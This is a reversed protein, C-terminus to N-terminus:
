ALVTQVVFADTQTTAYIPAAQSRIIVSRGDESPYGDHYFMRPDLVGSNKVNPMAASDPSLGFFWTLWQQRIPDIPLCDSPGFYRDCRVGSYFYLVKKLPMYNTITGTSPAKYVDDYTFLYFEHGRMTRAKGIWTFGAEVWKNFRSPLSIKDNYAVLDIRRNDGGTQIESDSYFAQAASGGLVMGDLSVYADQRGYDWADDMDELIVASANDWKVSVTYDHTADRLFDYILDTNSTGYIAPMTGNILSQWALYENMRVIRRMIEMHLNMALKRMRAEPTSGSYPNEGALRMENVQKATIVATDYILPYQRSFTSFKEDGGTPQGSTNIGSAGRNILMALTEGASRIIDIEVVGSGDSYLTQSNGQAPDGFFTQGATPVSVIDREDFASVMVRSYQDTGLPDTFNSM